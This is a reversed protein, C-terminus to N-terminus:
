YESYFGLSLGGPGCVVSGVVCWPTIHLESIEFQSLLKKKLAEAEEPNNTYSITAHLKKNGYKKQV